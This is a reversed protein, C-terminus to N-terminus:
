LDALIKYTFIININVASVLWEVIKVWMVKMIIIIHYLYNGFISKLKDVEIGIVEIKNTHKTIKSVRLDTYQEVFTYSSQSNSLLLASELSEFLEVTLRREVPGMIFYCFKTRSSDKWLSLQKQINESIISNCLQHYDYLINRNQNNTKLNLKSNELLNGYSNYPYQSDTIKM